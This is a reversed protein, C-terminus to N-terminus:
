RSSWQSVGVLAETLGDLLAVVTAEGVRRGLFFADGAAGVAGFPPRYTGVVTLQTSGDDTALAALEIRGAFVPFWDPHLTDGFRVDVSVSDAFEVVDGADVSVERRLSLGMSHVLLPTSDAVHTEDVLQRLRSVAEDVEVDLTRYGYLRRQM